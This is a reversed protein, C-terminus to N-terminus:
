FGSTNGKEMEAGFSLSFLLLRVSICINYFIIGFNYMVKHGYKVSSFKTADKTGVPAAFSPVTM